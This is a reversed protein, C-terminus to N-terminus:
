QVSPFSALLPQVEALHEAYGPEWPFAGTKKDPWVGQFIPYASGQYFWSTWTTYERRVSADAVNLFTFLAEDLFDEYRRGEEFVEGKIIREAYDNILHHGVETKLGFVILEPKGTREFIGTSYLFGPGTEDGHVGTVHWGYRDVIDLFKREHDDKATPRM